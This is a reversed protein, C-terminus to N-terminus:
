LKTLFMRLKEFENTSMQNDEALQHGGHGCGVHDIGRPLYGVEKTIEDCLRRLIKLCYLNKWRRL